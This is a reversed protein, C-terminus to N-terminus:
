RARVTSTSRCPSTSAVTSPGGSWRTRSSGTTGGAAALADRLEAMEAVSLGRYESVISASAAEIRTKVEAVVEVKHAMQANQTAM